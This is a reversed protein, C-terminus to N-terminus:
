SYVSPGSQYHLVCCGRALVVRVGGDCVNHPRHATKHTTNANSCDRYSGPHLISRHVAEREQTLKLRTATGGSASRRHSRELPLGLLAREEPHEVHVNM